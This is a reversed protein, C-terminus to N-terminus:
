KVNKKTLDEFANGLENMDRNFEGKFAIWKDRGQDQYDDLKKKLDTNKQEIKALKMEYDARNEKKEKAIRARFERISKQQAVLKENAETRFQQCEMISDEREKNLDLKAEAADLKTQEVKEEADSVKKASSDCSTIMTGGILTTVALILIQKKM